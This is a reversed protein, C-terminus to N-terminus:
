TVAQYFTRQALRVRFGAQLLANYLRSADWTRREENEGAQPFFRYLWHGPMATPLVDVFAWTGGPQVVRRAEELLTEKDETRQLAFPTWLFSVSEDALTHWDQVRELSVEPWKRPDVRLPPVGPRALEVVRGIAQKAKRRAKLWDSLAPTVRKGVMEEPLTPVLPWDPTEQPHPTGTLPPLVPALQLEQALEPTWLPAFVGFSVERLLPLRRFLPVFIPYPELTALRGQSMDVKVQRLALRLLDRRDAPDAEDWVQALEELTAAARRITDLDAPAPLEALERRIRNLERQYLDIDEDFDGRIYQEKLRRREAILRARRSELTPRDDDQALLEELRSQWDHPLRLRRFIAGVQREIVEARVGSSAAPCDTFGRDRSMERYYSGAKAGQARLKRGCVACTAIGNLLYVRYKPQYTRPAGRRQQRIRRCMDWLQPSVLPEHKGPFLEGATQDRSGQRYVVFGKYFPNRLMDAVTDKSFPRGSRTRFGADNLWAAIEKTSYRGTAYRQFLERVARAEEEVIVPPTDADGSHRYGYPTISANYLGDRARQRKSKRTHMKLLDVYYQHLAALITLFLRGTPTSFDFGPEKVSAFGIDLKGLREFIRFTDFLRRSLRSLEHVLLIDFARQEAAALLAELGPRDMNTGSFGPDTFEAVVTWGRQAAFERMEALQAAISKGSEAQMDTSVRAYLAVRTMM